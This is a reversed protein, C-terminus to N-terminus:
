VPSIVQPGPRWAWSAFHAELAGAITADDEVIFIRM